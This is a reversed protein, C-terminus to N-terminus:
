KKLSIINEQVGKPCNLLNLFQLTNNVELCQVINIIVESSLPNGDMCLSVLCSNSEPVSNITDLADDTIDNYSIYLGKLKNNDKLITFLTIAASSSLRTCYM